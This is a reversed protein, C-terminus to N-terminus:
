CNVLFNQKVKSIVKSEIMVGLFITVWYMKKLFIHRQSVVSIPVLLNMCVVASYFHSQYVMGFQDKSFFSFFSRIEPEKNLVTKEGSISKINPTYGGKPNIGFLSESISKETFRKKEITM